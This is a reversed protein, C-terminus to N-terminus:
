FIRCGEGEVGPNTYVVDEAVSSRLLREQEAPSTAAFADLYDKFIGAFETNTMSSDKFHWNHQILQVLVVTSLDQHHTSPLSALFISWEDLHLRDM